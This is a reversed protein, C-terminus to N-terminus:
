LAVAIDFTAFVRLDFNKKSYVGSTISRHPSLEPRGM